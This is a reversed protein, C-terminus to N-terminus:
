LRSVHVHATRRECDQRRRGSVIVVACGRNRPGEVLTMGPGAPRIESPLVSL